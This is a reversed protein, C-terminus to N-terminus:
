SAQLTSGWLDNRDDEHDRLEMDLWLRAALAVVGVSAVLAWAMLAWVWWSM